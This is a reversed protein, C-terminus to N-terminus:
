PPSAEVPSAWLADFVAAAAALLATDDAHQERLGALVAELGAAEPTPTGGVDLYHVSAAVRQLRPDAALGFSALLVEFTVRDGVHSFRAGDFDYGIAGRPLQQLQQPDKLWLFRPERDIFRGILWGCALRDVWPRERTAWSCGQFDASDLVSIGQDPAARPEGRSYSTDVAERLAALMAASREAETGPYHDSRLVDDLAQALTRLKRRAAAETEQGITAQFALAQARWQVHAESRDFLAMVQAAQEPSTAGLRMVWATGGHRRVDDAVPEFLAARDAPLLYAGDRLLPCGLAKL